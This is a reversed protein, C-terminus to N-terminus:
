DTWRLEYGSTTTRVMKMPAGSTYYLQYGQAVAKTIVDNMNDRRKQGAEMSCHACSERMTCLCMMTKSAEAWALQLPHNPDYKNM